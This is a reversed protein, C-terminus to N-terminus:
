AVVEFIDLKHKIMYLFYFLPGGHTTVDVVGYITVDHGDGKTIHVRFINLCLHHNLLVEIGSGFQWPTSFM